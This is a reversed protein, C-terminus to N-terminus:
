FRWLYHSVLHEAFYPLGQKLMMNYSRQILFWLVLLQCLMNVRKNGLKVGQTEENKPLNVSTATPSMIDVNLAQGESGSVDSMNYGAFGFFFM